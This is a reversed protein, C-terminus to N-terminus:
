RSCAWSPASRIATSGPGGEGAPVVALVHEIAIMRVERARQRIDVSANTRSVPSEPKALLPSTVLVDSKGSELAIM